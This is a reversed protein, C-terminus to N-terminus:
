ANNNELSVSKYNCHDCWHAGALVGLTKWNDIKIVKFRKRTIIKGIGCRKCKRGTYTSYIVKAGLPIDGLYKYQKFKLTRYVSESLLYLVLTVWLLVAFCLVFTLAFSM